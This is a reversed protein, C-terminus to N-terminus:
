LIVHYQKKEDVIVQIYSLLEPARQIEDLIVYSSFQKLFANPDQAAFERNEPLELNCYEYKAFSRALTTKGAQRPGIITVIPYEKLLQSCEKRIERTIM